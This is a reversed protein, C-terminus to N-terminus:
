FTLLLGANYNLYSIPRQKEIVVLESYDFDEYKPNGAIYDASINLGLKGNFKVLVGVGFNHAFSGSFEEVTELTQLLESQPLRYELIQNPRYTTMVGIFTKAYVSIFDGINVKIYPGFLFNHLNYNGSTLGISDVMEQSQETLLVNFLDSDFNCKNFRLNAGFGVFDNIYLMMEFSFNYGNIAFGSSEDILETNAFDGIPNTYGLSISLYKEQAQSITLAYCIIYIILASKKM